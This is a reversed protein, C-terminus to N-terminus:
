DQRKLGWEELIQCSDGVRGRGQKEGRFDDNHHKEKELPLVNQLSLLLLPLIPRPVRQTPNRSSLAAFIPPGNGTIERAAKPVDQVEVM